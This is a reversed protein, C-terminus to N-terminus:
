KQLSVVVELVLSNLVNALAVPWLRKWKLFAFGLILGKMLCHTLTASGYAFNATAYILASVIVALAGPMIKALRTTIYSRFAIEELFCTALYLFVLAVYDITRSAPVFRQDTWGNQVWGAQGCLFYWSGQLLLLLLLALGVDVMRLPVIGVTKWPEGRLQMWKLFVFLVSGDRLTDILCDQWFPPTTSPQLFFLWNRLLMPMVVLAFVVALDPWVGTPPAQVSDVVQLPDDPQEIREQIRAKLFEKLIATAAPLDSRSVLVRPATSWGPALGGIAAQLHENDVASNIDADLLAARLAQAEVLHSARHLELPDQDTM